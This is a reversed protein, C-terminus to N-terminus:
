LSFLIPDLLWPASKPRRINSPHSFSLPTNGTKPFRTSTRPLATNEVQTHLTNEEQCRPRAFLHWSPPFSRRPTERARNIQNHKQNSFNLSLFNRGSIKITHKKDITKFPFVLILNIFSKIHIKHLTCDSQSYFLLTM